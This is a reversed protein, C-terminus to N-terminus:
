WKVTVQDPGAYGANSQYFVVRGPAEIDRCSGARPARVKGTRISLTGNTPPKIVRVEPPPSATCDRKITFHVSLQIQRGSVAKASRHTSDQAQASSAWLPILAVVAASLIAIAM